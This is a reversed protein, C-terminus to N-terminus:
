VSRHHELIEFIGSGSDAISNYTIPNTPAANTIAIAARNDAIAHATSNHPSFHLYRLHYL